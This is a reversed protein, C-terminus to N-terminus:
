PVIYIQTDSWSLEISPSVNLQPVEEYKIDRENLRVRNSYFYHFHVKIEENNLSSLYDLEENMNETLKVQYYVYVSSILLVNIVLILILFINSYNFLRTKLNLSLLLSFIPILWLQPVFRAWWSSPNIIVSIFILLIILSKISIDPDKLMPHKKAKLVGFLNFLCIIIAGSFLPGFGSIRVDPTRFAKLDEISFIFPIKYESDIIGIKPHSFISSFLNEFSNTNQFSSPTNSQLIDIDSGVVPYFPNGQNVTNTVYPNYGVILSGILFSFFLCKSILVLKEKKYIFIWYIMGFSFILAYIVGLFKVNILIIITSILSMLVLIDTRKSLLLMLCLFCSIASALQGDVYFSLSQSISVPNMSILFGLVLAYRLKITDSTLIITAFAILFTTIILFINIAKCEEISGTVTSLVAANIEAGKSYHNIWISHPVESSVDNYVPNWGNM